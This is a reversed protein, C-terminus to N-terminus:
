ANLSKWIKKITKNVFNFESNLVLNLFKSIVQAKLSAIHDKDLISSTELKQMKSQLQRNEQVHQAIAVEKEAKKQDSLTNIRGKFRNM